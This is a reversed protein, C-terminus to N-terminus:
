SEVVFSVLKKIINKIYTIVRFLGNKLFSMLKKLLIKKENAEKLKKDCHEIHQNISSEIEIVKNQINIEPKQSVKMDNIKKIIEGETLKRILQPNELLIRDIDNILNPRRYTRATNLGSLELERAKETLSNEKVRILGSREREIKIKYRNIEDIVVNVGQKTKDLIVISFLLENIKNDILIQDQGVIVADFSKISGIEHSNFVLFSLNENIFDKNFVLLDKSNEKYNSSDIIENEFVIRFIPNLYNEPDNKNKLLAFIRSLTTKGSYNAGYIINMKKFYNNEALGNFNQYSGFNEIEINKLM